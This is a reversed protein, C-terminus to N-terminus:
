VTTPPRLISPVFNSLHMPSIYTIVEFVESRSIYVVELINKELHLVVPVKIITEHHNTDSSGDQNYDRNIDTSSIDNLASEFDNFSMQVLSNLLLIMFLSIFFKAKSRM